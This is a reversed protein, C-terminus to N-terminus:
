PLECVNWYSIAACMVNVFKHYDMEKILYGAAGSEYAHLVDQAANSTTLVVIPIKRFEPTIKIFNLFEVGNTKPMNIDLLILGPLNSLHQTLYRIAEEGDKAVDLNNKLNLEKFIRKIAQADVEDDEILMITKNQLPM